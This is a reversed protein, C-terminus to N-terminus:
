SKPTTPVVIQSNKIKTKAEEIKSAIDDIKGGSTSLGVGESGLDYQQVGTKKDGKTYAQIYKFVAVDVRKLVSTLIVDRLSPDVSQYQDSDVGLAWKKSAKAAQFVGVGSGGAAPFIVDAGADYMGKAAERGKDPSDFGVGYTVDVKIKPNTDLAGQRFGAEFTQLVPLKLGGIFGVHGTKSKSLPRSAM